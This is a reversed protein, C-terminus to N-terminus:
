WLCNSGIKNVSTETNSQPRFMFDRHSQSPSRWLVEEVFRSHIYKERWHISFKECGECVNKVRIFHMFPLPETPM